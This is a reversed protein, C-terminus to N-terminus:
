LAKEALTAQAPQCTAGLGFRVKSTQIDNKRKKRLVLYSRDACDGKVGAPGGARVQLFLFATMVSKQALKDRATMKDSIKIVRHFKQAGLFCGEVILVFKNVVQDPQM